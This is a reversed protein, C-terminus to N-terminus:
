ITTFFLIIIFKKFYSKSSWAIVKLGYKRSVKKVFACIDKDFSPSYFFIYKGKPKISDDVLEDYDSEDLLLTPDILVPVDKNILDKIWKKGNNERVSLADFDNLYNRYKEPNDSYDLINKAGFSPAYAVKYAKNCWNLFYADDSDPITINWIQDSGAIAIDYCDIIDKSKSYEKESLIFNNQKFMEYRKNNENIRKRHPFLIINKILNKLSNSREFTAYMLRQGDNSFDIIENNVDKKLLYKQIAFSEMMSGCNYSNHFTIIGVKKM